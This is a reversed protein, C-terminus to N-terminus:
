NWTKRAGQLASSRLGQKKRLFVFTEHLTASPQFCLIEHNEMSKIFNRFTEHFDMFKWLKRGNWLIEARCRRWAFFAIIGISKWHNCREYEEGPVGFVSNGHFYHIWVLIIRFKMFNPSIWSWFLIKIIRPPGQGARAPFRSIGIPINLNRLRGPGSRDSWFLSFWLIEKSIARKWDLCTKGGRSRLFHGWFTVNIFPKQCPGGIDIKAGGSANKSGLLM